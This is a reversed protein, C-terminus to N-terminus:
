LEYSIGFSILCDFLNLSFTVSAIEEFMIWRMQKEAYILCDYLNMHYELVILHTVQLFLVSFCAIIMRCGSDLKM